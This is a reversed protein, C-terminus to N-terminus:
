KLITKEIVVPFHQYELQHVRQALTEADDTDLVPCEAQFLIPGRDYHNDIIHITIGSKTEKSDIVEQHVKLGYMGPGGHKPLLSPHINIIRNPFQDLLNQPILLLFGALIVYDIKREILYDLVRSSEYFDKKNFYQAEIGLNHARQAIFADKRNYIICDIIIDKHGSFYECLRQANTGNGSGLIALRTM